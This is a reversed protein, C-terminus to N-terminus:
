YALLLLAEIELPTFRIIQGLRNTQMILDSLIPLDNERIGLDRLCTPSGWDAIRNRFSKLAQSVSEAGWVEKAWHTFREPHQESVYEIWAPFIVGLGEGHAIKPDFASLAHEIGHCAWDGGKLGVGSIGNLALTACWALNARANVDNPDHRLRDTMDMITRLLASDISLTATASEDMFYYELIHAIADLAGNLTQKWPLSCQVWPDIISVKPFIHPSSMGLKHKASTNTIVAISNMESGTASLTLVTYIPLAKKIKEESIFAQWIDVMYFGAATAKASDIVSGGGVALVADVHERRAQAILEHVKELTPNSQVGWNETWQIKNDQLTKVVQNYVGNLKISGGGAVLLCKSVGASHMETGLNAIAGTGFHVKVPNYFSFAEM